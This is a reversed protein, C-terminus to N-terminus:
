KDEQSKEFEKIVPEIAQRLTLKFENVGAEVITKKAEASKMLDTIWTPKLNSDRSGYVVRPERVAGPKTSQPIDIPAVGDGDSIWQESVGYLKAIRAVLDHTLPKTRRELQVYYGTSINLEQALDVQRKRRYQRIQKIRWAADAPEFVQDKHTSTIASM